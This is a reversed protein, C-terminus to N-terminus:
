VNAEFDVLERGRLSCRVDRTAYVIDPNVSSMDIEYSLDISKVYQGTVSKSIIQRVPYELRSQAHGDCIEVALGAGITKDQRALAREAVLQQTVAAGFSVCQAFEATGRVFGSQLCVRESPSYQRVDTTDASPGGVTNCAAAFALPLLILSRM